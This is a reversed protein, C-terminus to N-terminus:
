RGRLDRALGSAVAIMPLALDFILFIPTSAALM